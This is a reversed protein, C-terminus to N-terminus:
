DAFIASQFPFLFILDQLTGAQNVIGDPSLYAALKQSGTRM